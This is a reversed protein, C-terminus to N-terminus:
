KFVHLHYVVIDSIFGIVGVVFAGALWRLTSRTEEITKLRGDLRTATVADDKAHIALETAIDEARSEVAHFGVDVRSMLAQMDDRAESRM